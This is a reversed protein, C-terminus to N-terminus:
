VRRLVAVLKEEFHKLFELLRRREDRYVVIITYLGDPGKWRTWLPFLRLELFRTSNPEGAVFSGGVLKLNYGIIDAVELDRGKLPRLHRIRAKVNAMLEYFLAEEPDTGLDKLVNEVENFVALVDAPRQGEVYLVRRGHDYGISCLGKAAIVDPPELPLLGIGDPPRVKIRAVNYGLEKLKHILSVLDLNLVWVSSIRIVVEEMDIPQHM